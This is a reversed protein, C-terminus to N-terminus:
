LTQFPTAYVMTSTEMPPWENTLPIVMFNDPNSLKFPAEIGWNSAPKFGFRSYYSNHGLVVVAQYGTAKCIELGKTILTSGVGQGQYVKSVALPALALCTVRPIFEFVLHAKTFLIHGIVQHNLTAVLSLEPIFAEDRRLCEVLLAENKRIFAEVHLAHVADYDANSEQRIQYL